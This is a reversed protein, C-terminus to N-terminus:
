YDRKTCRWFLYFSPFITVTSVVFLALSYQFLSWSVEDVAGQYYDNVVSEAKGDLFCGMEEIEVFYNKVELMRGRYYTMAGFMVILDIFVMLGLILSIGLWFQGLFKSLLENFPGCCFLFPLLWFIVWGCLISQIILGALSTGSMYKQLDHMTKSAKELLGTDINLCFEKEAVDLRKRYSLIADTHEYVYRYDRLDLVSLPFDNQYFLEKQKQSDLLFSYGDDLGYKSCGWENAKMLIYMPVPGRAFSEVGFCSINNPTIRVDIMPSEGEVIEAAFNEGERRVKTMPCDLTELM